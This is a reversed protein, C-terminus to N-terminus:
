HRSEAAPGKGAGSTAGSTTGSAPAGASKSPDGSPGSEKRKPDITDKVTEGVASVADKVGRGSLGKEDLTRGIEHAAETAVAGAESLGERAMSRASDRIRDAAPGFLKHETRSRPLAAGIVAGVALGVAGIILPQDEIARAIGRQAEYSADRVREGAHRISEGAHSAYEAASSATDAIRDRADHAMRRASESMSEMSDGASSALSAARDRASRATESMSSAASSAADGARSAYGRSGDEGDVHVHHRDPDTYLDDATYRPRHRGSWRSGSSGSSSFRDGLLLWGIGAGILAVPMPNDRMQRGLNRTFDAGGSGRVYELAQDIMQGPSLSERINGLTHRVDARAMEVEREIEDPSKNHHDISSM